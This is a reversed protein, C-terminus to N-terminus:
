AHRWVARAFKNGHSFGFDIHGGFADHVARGLREVLHETSTTVTLIDPATRECALVQALPNDVAARAAENRILRVLEDPHGSVYPGELRLVGGVQREARMKCARCTTREAGASVIPARTDSPPM